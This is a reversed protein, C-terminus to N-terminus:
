KRFKQCDVNMGIFSGYRIRITANQSGRIESGDLYVSTCSTSVKIISEDISQCSCQFTIDSIHGAASVQYIRMKRSIQRGNLVATNLLEKSNTIAIIEEMVDKQIDILSTLKISEKEFNEDLESQQRQRQSHENSSDIIINNNPNNRYGDMETEYLLQWVIRGNMEAINVEDTVEILWSYVEQSINEMLEDLLPSQNDFSSSSDRLFATVTASTQGTGLEISLQWLKNPHSLQAGLIKLGPKVQVRLSFASIPYEPNYTYKVPIYIKSNPYVPEQPILVTVVNDNTVEEYSGRFPVLFVDSLHILNMSNEASFLDSITEDSNDSSSTSALLSLFNQDNCQQDGPIHAITYFVKAM